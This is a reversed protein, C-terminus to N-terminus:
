LKNFRSFIMKSKLRTLLVQFILNKPCEIQGTGCRSRAERRASIEGVDKQVVDGNWNCVGQLLVVSEGLSSELGKRSHGELQLVITYFNDILGVKDRSKLHLLFFNFECNGTM